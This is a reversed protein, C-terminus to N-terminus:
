IVRIGIIGSFIRNEESHKSMGAVQGVFAVSGSGTKHLDIVGRLPKFKYTSVGLPQGLYRSHRICVVSEVM